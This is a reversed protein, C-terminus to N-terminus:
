KAVKYYLEIFKNAINRPSLFNFLHSNNAANFAQHRDSYLDNLLAYLDEAEKIYLPYAEGLLEVVSSDKSTILKSGAGVSTALKTAPKFIHELSNSSRYSIHVPFNLNQDIEEFDFNMYVFKDLKRHDLQLGNRVGIYSARKGIQTLSHASKMHSYKRNFAHPIKYIQKINTNQLLIQRVQESYVILGDVENFFPILTKNFIPNYQHWCFSDLIDPIIINDRRARELNERVDQFFFNLSQGFTLIPIILANSLQRLEAQDNSIIVKALGPYTLNIEHAMQRGRFDTSGGENGCLFVIM